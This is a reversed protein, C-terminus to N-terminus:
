GVEGGAILALAQKNHEPSSGNAGVITPERHFLNSDLTITPKDKPM